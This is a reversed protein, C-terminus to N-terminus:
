YPGAFRYNLGFRVFNYHHSIDYNAFMGGLLPQTTTIRVSTKGLDVYLYDFRASWNNSLAYEAGAGVTWGFRKENVPGQLDILTPPFTATLFTYEVSSKVQGFALGGTGYLLIHDVPVFGIRGRFTSFWDLADSTLTTGQNQGALNPTSIVVETARVGSAYVDAEVGWVFNGTQRNFGIQGGGVVGGPHLNVSSAAAGINLLAAFTTPDNATLDASSNNFGYGINAGVYFGDWRTTFPAPAAIPAAKVPFDAAYARAAAPSVAASSRARTDVGAKPLVEAASNANPPAVFIKGKEAQLGHVQERLKANRLELQLRDIQRRLAANEKALEHDPKATANATQAMPPNSNFLILGM